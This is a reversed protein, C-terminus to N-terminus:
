VDACFLCIREAALTGARGERFPAMGLVDRLLLLNTEFGAIETAKLAEEAKRIVEARDGGKM